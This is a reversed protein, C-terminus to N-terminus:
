SFGTVDHVHNPDAPQYTPTGSLNNAPARVVVQLKAGGALPVLTGSGEQFVNSVYRVDYGAPPGALEIM